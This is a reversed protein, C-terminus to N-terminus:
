GTPVPTIINIGRASSCFGLGIARVPPVAPKKQTHLSSDGCFIPLYSNQDRISSSGKIIVSFFRNTATKRQQDSSRSTDRESVTADGPVGIQRHTSTKGDSPQGPEKAETPEGRERGGEVLGRSERRTGRRGDTHAPRGM